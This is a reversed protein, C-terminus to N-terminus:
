RVVVRSISRKSSSTRSAPCSANTPYISRALALPRRSLSLFAPAPATASNRRALFDTVPKASQWLPDNLTGDVSPAHEVRVAEAIHSENQPISQPFALAVCGPLFFVCVLLTSRLDVFELSVWLRWQLVCRLLSVPPVRLDFAPWPFCILGTLATPSNLM